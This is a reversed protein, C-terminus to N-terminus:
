PAIKKSLTSEKAIGSLNRIEMNPDKKSILSKILLLTLYINQAADILITRLKIKIGDYSIIPAAIDVIM